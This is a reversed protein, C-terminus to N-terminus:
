PGAAPLRLARSHLKRLTDGFRGLDLSVNQGGLYVRATLDWGRERTAAKKGGGSGDEVDLAGGAGLGKAADPLKSAM